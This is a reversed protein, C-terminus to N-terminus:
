QIRLVECLQLATTVCDDCVSLVCGREIEGDEMEVCECSRTM